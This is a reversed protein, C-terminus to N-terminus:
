DKLLPIAKYYAGDIGYLKLYYVGNELHSIAIPFERTNILAQGLANYIVISEFPHEGKAYVLDHSPNPYISFNGGILDALGTSTDPMQEVTLNICYSNNSVNLENSAGDIFACYQYSGPSNFTYSVNQSLSQNSNIASFNSSGIEAGEIRYSISLNENINEAGINKFDIILQTAENAVIPANGSSLNLIVLDSYTPSLSCSQTFNYINSRLTNLAAYVNNGPCETVTCSAPITNGDRHGCLNILDVAGNAFYTTDRPDEDIDCAKWGMLEILSNMMATSPSATNFDGLLCVGLSGTNMCSFHAGRVNNGRGEYIVGDPDILYNYGIDAWGQTNVHYDWISRVTAAWNPSTNSGASHHVVLHSVVTATPNLGMPCNGSPCWDNRFEIAPLPCNCNVAKESNEEVKKITQISETGPFYFRFQLNSLDFQTKSDAGLKFQIENASPSIYIPLAYIRSLIPNAHDDITALEWSSWKKGDKVKYYIELDGELYLYNVFVNVAIFDQNLIVKPIVYTNSLYEAPESNDVKEIHDHYFAINKEKSYNDLSALEINFNREQQAFIQVMSCLMTVSLIVQKM